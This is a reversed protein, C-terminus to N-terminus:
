RRPKRARGNYKDETLKMHHREIAEAVARLCRTIDAPSLNNAKYYNNIADTYLEEILPVAEDAKSESVPIVVRVLGDLGVPFQLSGSTVSRKTGDDSVM